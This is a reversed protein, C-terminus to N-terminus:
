FPEFHMGINVDLIIDSIFVSLNAFFWQVM